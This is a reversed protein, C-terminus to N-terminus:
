EVALVNRARMGEVSTVQGRPDDDPVRGVKSSWVADAYPTFSIQRKQLIDELELLVQYNFLDAAAVWRLVSKTDRGDCLAQWDRPLGQNLSALGTPYYEHHGMAEQMAVVNNGWKKGYEAASEKEAAELITAYFTALDQTIGYCRLLDSGRRQLIQANRVLLNHMESLVQATEQPQATNARDIALAVAIKDASLVGILRSLLLQNKDNTDLVDRVRFWKQLQTVRASPALAQLNAFYVHIDEVLNISVGNRLRDQVANAITEASANEDFAVVAKTPLSSAYVPLLLSLGCAAFFGFILLYRTKM